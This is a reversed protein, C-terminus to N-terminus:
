RDLLLDFDLQKTWPQYNSMTGLFLFSITQPMAKEIVPMLDPHPM